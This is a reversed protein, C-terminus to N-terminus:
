TDSRRFTRPLRVVPVTFVSSSLFPSLFLFLSLFLLLLSGDTVEPQTRFKLGPRFVIECQEKSLSIYNM